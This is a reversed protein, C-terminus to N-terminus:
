AHGALERDVFRALRELAEAFSRRGFGIRFHGGGHGFLTGPLLLVGEAERLRTTFQEVPLDGRLRPFAVSGARPRVWEFLDPRRAFFAGLRALNSSLLTRNRSLIVDRARLAILALIESPASTCITLYDKCAALRELLVRDRTAIWGIRLGPLGFSKSMVGLSVGRLSVDVAAPLREAEDQESWRYVEDSFLWAGRSEAAVIAQEFAARAPLAGTPNHPFNLVVARTTQRLAEHLAEPHFAWGDEHRLPLLTVEAGTARAVEFLSQYAPWTVVAHDGAGLAVSHFAFIAEQAGSFVLVDDAGVREYLSAIAARLAPHGQSETYGLRLGSWLVRAEPDALEVLEAVALSEVDSASLQYPTTFEYRAFYRELEFDPIKL